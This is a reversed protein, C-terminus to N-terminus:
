TRVEVFVEKSEPDYIKVVGSIDFGGLENPKQPLTASAQVPENESLKNMDKNLM